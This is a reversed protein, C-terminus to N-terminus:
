LLNVPDLDTRWSKPANKAVEVLLERRAAKVIIQWNYKGNAREHFAPAPGLVKLDARQRLQQGLQLGATKAATASTAATSLKLLYRYPPYGFRQRETLEADAFSNFDSAAAFQIAPSDPTRTQIFVRGPVTTRGARGSVQMLLQVTREAATFDPLYLMTDASIVGVTDLLPLDLGKAIMQTGILIDIEGSHLRQYLKPLEKTDASDKDLRLIRADPLLRAIETEIRKTGGGVFSREGSGCEPCTAPPAAHYNCVHCVLKLRDAHFTLPLHCTPCNSVHGCSDCLHSSASGRRNLFLLSQRKQGLTEALAAHLEKSIFRSPDGGDRERMDIITVTPLPRNDIRQPLKILPIRGIQALYIENVGPTASGLVLKAGALRALKAATAVAHYRPNQEQKYSSEHCEDIAIFGLKPVPLFLSSRPGVVVVPEDSALARLWALHKQAETLGSHYAVVRGPFCAEFLGILQPTLAIEPVLIIASQNALLADRTLEIYIRTKGSGTVGQLLYSTERGTSIRQYAASQSPTLAHDPEPLEAHEVAQTSARRRKTIGAPLMTQWVAKPSSFYYTKMWKALQVLHLPLPRLGLPENVPRTKFEPESQNIATVVGLSQRSGLPVKVIQGLALANASTYTYAGGETGTFTLPEVTVYRTQSM